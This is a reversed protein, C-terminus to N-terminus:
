YGLKAATKKTEGGAIEVAAADFTPPGAFGRANESFAYGEKPIGLLNTDLADNGNEDHFVAVAFRGSPLDSFVFQMTGSKAIRWQAAVTGAGDPFKVETKPAHLAVMVKGQDSRVGDVTVTLEASNAAAASTMAFIGALAGAFRHTRRALRSVKRTPSQSTM